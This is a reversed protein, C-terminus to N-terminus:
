LLRRTSSAVATDQGCSAQARASVANDGLTHDCPPASKRKLFDFLGRLDQKSLPISHEVQESQQKKWAEWAKKPENESIDKSMTQHREALADRWCQMQFKRKRHQEFFDKEPWFKDPLRLDRNDYQMFDFDVVVNPLYDRVYRSVLITYSENVAWLGSDFAAHHLACLCLGNRPNVRLDERESWGVIHAATLLEPIPNGCVCCACGYSALVTDRFFRQYLRVRVERTIETPGTIQREVAIFKRRPRQGVEPAVELDRSEEGLLGTSAVESEVALAEWNKHFENWIAKDAKSARVLGTIGQAKLAPDFSGFNGLKMAVAAPSRGILKAVETVAPNNAKTKAFPIRCYLNFTVLLEERSWERTM